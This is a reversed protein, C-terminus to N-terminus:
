PIRAGCKKCYLSDETNLVGCDPCRVANKYRVIKDRLKELGANLEDVREVCADVMESIDEGSKRGDYVLRGLGELTAAIDKETQAAEMKLRTVEVLEGTKKGAAEGLDKVKCLIDEFTTM